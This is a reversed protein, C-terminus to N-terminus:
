YTIKFNKKEKSWYCENEAKCSFCQRSLKDARYIIEELKNDSEKRHNAIGNLIIKVEEETFSTEKLIERSMDVSAIDHHIGEEYQKVRGIDHLLGIAYIVEKSVKLDEELVMIYAIRAVDIFHEITHNCFERNEEYKKLKELSETYISNNMIIDINKM